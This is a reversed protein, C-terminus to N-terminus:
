LFSAVLQLGRLDDQEVGYQDWLDQRSVEYYGEDVKRLLFRVSAATGAGVPAFACAAQIINISALEWPGQDTNVDIHSRALAFAERLQPTFNVSIRELYQQTTEKM